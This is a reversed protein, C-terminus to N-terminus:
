LQVECSLLETFGTTTHFDSSLSLPLFLPIDEVASTGSQVASLLKSTVDDHFSLGFNAHCDAGHANIHWTPVAFEIITDEPIHINSPFKKM